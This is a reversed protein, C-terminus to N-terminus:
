DLGSDSVLQYYFDVMMPHCHAQRAVVEKWRPVLNSWNEQHYDAGLSRGEVKSRSNRPGLVPGQVPVLALSHLNKSDLVLVQALMPMLVEWHLTKPGLVVEVQVM